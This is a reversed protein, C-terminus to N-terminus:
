SLARDLADRQEGTLWTALGAQRLLAQRFAEWREPHDSELGDRVRAIAGPESLFSRVVFSGVWEQPDHEAFFRGWARAFLGPSRPWLSWPVSSWHPGIPRDLLYERVVAPRGGEAAVAVLRVLDALHSEEDESGLGPLPRLLDAIRHLYAPEELEELLFLTVGYAREERLLVELLSAVFAPREAVRVRGVKRRLRRATEYPEEGGYRSRFRRWWGGFDGAASGPGKRTATPAASM